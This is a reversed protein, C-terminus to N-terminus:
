LYEKEKNESLGQRTNNADYHIGGCFLIARYAQLLVKM